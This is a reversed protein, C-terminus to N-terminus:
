EEEEKAHNKLFDLLTFLKEMLAEAKAQIEEDNKNPTDRLIIDGIALLNALALDASNGKGICAVDDEIVTHISLGLGDEVGVDKLSAWLERLDEATLKENEFEIKM